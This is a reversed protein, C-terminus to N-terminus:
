EKSLIAKLRKIEEDIKTHWGRFEKPLDSVLHFTGSRNQKIIPFKKLLIDNLHDIFLNEIESILRDYTKEFTNEDKTFSINKQYIIPGTDIGEDIIHITVGSPSGDYFSWFNPHAGRNWPLCSIHLNVIIPNSGGLLSKNLIHRYGHSIVLDFGHTSVIKEETHSVDCGYQILKDILQTKHRSYGLFLIKIKPPYLLKKSNM